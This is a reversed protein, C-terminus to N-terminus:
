VHKWTKRAIILSVNTQTIGFEEALQKQTVDGAAYRARVLRVADASLVSWPVGEGRSQRGKSMKDANNDAITGLFLHAVNVCRRNDCDHLVCLGAPITGRTLEWAVRHALLLRGSSTGSSIIGYGGRNTNGEWLLCNRENAEGVYGLFREGLPITRSQAYCAHSCFKAGRKTVSSKGCVTCARAIKTSKARAM